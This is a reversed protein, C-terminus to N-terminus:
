GQSRRAGRRSRPAIGPVGCFGDNPQRDTGACHCKRPTWLCGARAGSNQGPRLVAHKSASYPALGPYGILGAISATAIMSGQGRKKMPEVCHKMALWVGLVNTRLVQEFETVDVTEIPKVWGETGANAFLIDVGGFTKITAAVAAATAEEDAADAVSWAVRKNLALRDRAARLKDSSRDVLMVNAGERLFLKVTAEGIGGTAGTIIAVKGNLKKRDDVKQNMHQLAQDPERVALLPM